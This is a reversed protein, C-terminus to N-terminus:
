VVFQSVLRELERTGTQVSRNLQLASSAEHSSSAALEAVQRIQTLMQNLTVAQESAAQYVQNIQQDVAAIQRCTLHLAEGSQQCAHMSSDAQGVSQQMLQYTDRTSQQIEGVMLSIERSSQESRQALARVEEAVVAFGRGQEGARAAEIAANLALLNTQEAIQQIVAVIQDIKGAKDALLHMVDACHHVTEITQQMQKLTDAIAQNGTTVTSAASKSETVVIGCSHVIAQASQELQQMAGALSATFHETQAAERQLNVSLQQSQETASTMSGTGQRIELVIRRIKEAFQNFNSAILGLEDQQRVPLRRTLDGDGSAVDRLNGAVEALQQLMSRRMYLGILILLGLTLAGCAVILLRISQRTQGSQQLVQESYRAQQQRGATVQQLLETSLQQYQQQQQHLEQLLKLATRINTEHQQCLQQYLVGLAIDGYHAPARASFLGTSVLENVADQQFQMSKELEDLLQPLPGRNKIQELFYLQRFFGINAEMGGDAAAWKQSLGGAWSIPKDPARTLMEVQADGVQEVLEGIEVIQDVTQQLKLQAARYTQYRQSLQQRQSAFQGAVETLATASAEGQSTQLLALAKLQEQLQLDRQAMVAEDAPKGQLLLEMDFRQADTLRTAQASQEGAKLVGNVLDDLLLGLRQNGSLGSAAMAAFLLFMLLLGLQTKGKLTM